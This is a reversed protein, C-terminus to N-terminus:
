RLCVVGYVWTSRMFDVETASSPHLVDLESVAAHSAPPMPPHNHALDRVFLPNRESHDIREGLGAEDGNRYM